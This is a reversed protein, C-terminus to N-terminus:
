YIVEYMSFTNDLSRLAYHKTKLVHLESSALGAPIEGSHIRIWEYARPALQYAAQQHMGIHKFHTKADVNQLLVLNYWRGPRLEFSSYSLLGPVRKLETLMQRDAEDLRPGLTPDSAKQRGSVFGVFALPKNLLLVEPQYLVIRHFCGHRETSAYLFPLQTDLPQELTHLTLRLQQLLHRLVLSDTNKKQVNNVGLHNLARAVPYISDKLM